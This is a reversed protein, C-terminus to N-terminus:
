QAEKLREIIGVLEEALSAVEQIAEASRAVGESTERSIRNIDDITRTIEESSASQEEAAAAIGHAMSTSHDVISVIEGLIEGAKQARDITRELASETAERKDVTSRVSDQIGSIAQGVESTAAMTKEALKRVEDAVVAFGRGAEGARAAEIAANLALLNTQDAIDSIVGMVHGISEAKQALDTMVESLEMNSSKIDSIAEITGSVENQGAQAQNRGKDASEAAEGSNRAVDIVTANMEEMATATEAIRQSQIESGHRIENTGEALQSASSSLRDAINSAQDAAGRMVAMMNTIHDEKDRAEKLAESAKAAQVGAEKSKSEAEAMSEQLHTVMSAIDDHLLVLESPFGADDCEETKGDAVARSYMQLVHMPGLISRIVFYVVVLLVLAVVIEIIVVILKVKESTSQLKVAATDAISDILPELNRVNDTFIKMDKRVEQQQVVYDEFSKEYHQLLTLMKDQLGPDFASFKVKNVMTAMDKKFKALYEIDGRLMFDKERRRLMLMAAMLSDNNQDKIISEAEHISERLNGTLGEKESLGMTVVGEVVKAFTDGYKVLLEKAQNVQDAFDPDHDAISDLINKNSAVLKEVAKAYKLDKRSLFDKEERRSQLTLVEAKVALIEVKEAEEIMGMGLLNVILVAGLGALAIALIVYMRIKISM